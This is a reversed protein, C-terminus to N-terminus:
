GGQGVKPPRPRLLSAVRTVFAEADVLRQDVKERSPFVGAYDGENRDEFAAQLLRQDAASFEGSKVFEQGFAAIVGSHKSRIIGRSLLMASVAHFLAYYARSIAFDYDGDDRLNRAAQVSREARRVLSEIEQESV